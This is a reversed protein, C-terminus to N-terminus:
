RIGVSALRAHLAALTESYEALEFGDVRAAHDGTFGDVAGAEVCTRVMREEEAVTPLLNRGAIVSMAAVLGYGGWNSVSAIVLKSTRTVAPLDPLEGSAAIEPAFVGMGIENGGDGIGVSADHREFLADIRATQATIDISRMNRYIGDSSPACREIGILLSPECQDLMAQAAEDSAGVDAIPFEVVNADAGAVARVVSAGHADTVYAVRNGLAELARGIAVAGPPGDTEVAQGSLIYFGTAILTLGPHDLVYRAADACFDAPLHPRLASIGRKDGSLIIDEIAGVCM